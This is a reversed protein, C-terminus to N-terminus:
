GIPIPLSHHSIYRAVVTVVLRRMQPIKYKKRPKYAGPSDRVACIIGLAMDLSIPETMIYEYITLCRRFVSEFYIADLVSVSYVDENESLLM